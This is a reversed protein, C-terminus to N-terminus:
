GMGPGESHETAWTQTPRLDRQRLTLPQLHLPHAKMIDQASSEHKEPLHTHTQHQQTPGNTHRHSTESTHPPTASDFPCSAQQLPSAMGGAQGGSPRSPTLSLPAWPFPPLPPLAWSTRSPSVASTGTCGQLAGKRARGLGCCGLGRVGSGPGPGPGCQSLPQRDAGEGVGDRAAATSHGARAEWKWVGYKGGERTQAELAAWVRQSKNVRNSPM